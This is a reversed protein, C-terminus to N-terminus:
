QGAINMDSNVPSWCRDTDQALRIGDEGGDSIILDM